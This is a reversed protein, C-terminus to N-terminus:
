GNKELYILLSVILQKIVKAVMQRVSIKQDGLKENVVTILNILQNDSSKVDDLINELIRLTIGVIKPNPDKMMKIINPLIVKSSGEFEPKNKSLQIKYLLDEAAETRQKLSGENNINNFM